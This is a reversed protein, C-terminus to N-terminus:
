GNDIEFLARLGMSTIPPAVAREGARESASLLHSLFRHRALGSLRCHNRRSLFRSLRALKGEFLSLGQLAQLLQLSSLVLCIHGVAGLLCKRGPPFLQAGLSGRQGGLLTDNTEALQM